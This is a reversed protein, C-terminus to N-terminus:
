NPFQQGEKERSKEPFDQVRWQLFFSVLALKKSPTSMNLVFLNMQNGTQIKLLM